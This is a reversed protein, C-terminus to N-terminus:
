AAGREVPEAALNATSWRWGAPFYHAVPWYYAGANVKEVVADIGGPTRSPATWRYPRVKSAQGPFRQRSRKHETVMHAAFAEADTFTLEDHDKRCSARFTDASM